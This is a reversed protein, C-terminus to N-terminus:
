WLHGYPTVTTTTIAAAGGVGLGAGITVGGGSVGGGSFGDGSAHPGWGGGLSVNTFPGNLDSISHGNSVAVSLGGSVDAGEGLGGGAVHYTGVAGTGDIAVGASFQINVPGFQFNVTLGVQLTCLGFPDILDTPNGSVYAYPNPGAALGVPDRQMYRGISPDYHRFYNYYLGSEADAYQGPYRLNFVISVGNADPDQQLVAMGFAALKSRWVVQGTAGTLLRPTDLRDAHVFYTGAADQVQAPAFGQPWYGYRKTRLGVADHESLLRAQDWLYWTVTTGVTKKVRRGYADYVYVSTVGSKVFQTLRSRVDHTLVAADSRTALNGDADFTYTLGPSVTIRHNNDYTEKLLRRL